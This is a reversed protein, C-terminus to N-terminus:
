AMKKIEFGWHNSHSRRIEEAVDRIDTTEIELTVTPRNRINIIARYKSTESM